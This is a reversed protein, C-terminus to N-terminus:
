AQVYITRSQGLFEPLDCVFTHPCLIGTDKYGPMLILLSYVEPSMINSVLLLFAAVLALRVSDGIHILEPSLSPAHCGGTDLQLEASLYEQVVPFSVSFSSLAWPHMLLQM